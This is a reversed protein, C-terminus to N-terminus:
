QFWYLILWDFYSYSNLSNYVRSIPACVIYILSYLFNILISSKQIVINISINM